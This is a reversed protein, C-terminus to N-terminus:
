LVREAMRGLVVGPVNVKASLPMVLATSVM